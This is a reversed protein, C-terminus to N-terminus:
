TKLMNINMQVVNNQQMYKTQCQYNYTLNNNFTYFFLLFKFLNTPLHILFDNPLLCIFPFSLFLIGFVFDVDSWLHCVHPPILTNLFQISHLPTPGPINLLCTPIYYIPGHLPCVLPSSLGNPKPRERTGAEAGLLQMITIGDDNM